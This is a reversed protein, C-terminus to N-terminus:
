GASHKRPPSSWVGWVGGGDQPQEGNAEGPRSPGEAGGRVPRGAFSAGSAATATTNDPPHLGCGEPREGDQPQEGHADGPRSARRVEAAPRGAFSATNGQPTFVVGGLGGRRGPTSATPTVRGPPVKPGEVSRAVRSARKARRPLWQTEPPHLGCGEPREGDRPQESRPASHDAIPKPIIQRDDATLQAPRTDLPLEGERPATTFASPGGGGNINVLASCLIFIFRIFARKIIDHRCVYGPRATRHGARVTRVCSSCTGHRRSASATIIYFSSRAGAQRCRSPSASGANGGAPGHVGYTSRRAGRDGDRM